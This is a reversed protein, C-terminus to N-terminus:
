RRDRGFQKLLQNEHCKKYFNYALFTTRKRTGTGENLSKRPMDESHETIGIGGQSGRGLEV